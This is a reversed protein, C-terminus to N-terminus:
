SVHRLLIGLIFPISKTLFIELSFLPKQCFRNELNNDFFGAACQVYNKNMAYCSLLKVIYNNILTMM